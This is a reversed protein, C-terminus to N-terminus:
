VELVTMCAVAAPCTSDRNTVAGLVTVANVVVPVTKRVEYQGAATTSYACLIASTGASHGDRVRAGDLAPTHIIVRM